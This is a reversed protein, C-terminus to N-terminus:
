HFHGGYMSWTNPGYPGPTEDVSKASIATKEREVDALAHAIISQPDEGQAVIVRLAAVLQEHVDSM